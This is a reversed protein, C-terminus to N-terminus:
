KLTVSAVLGFHDSPYLSADAAHPREGIVRADEVEFAAPDVLIYDLTKRQFWEGEGSVLPTPFTYDPERGHVERYASVLRKRAQAITESEPTANFDGMLVWSGAQQREHFMWGLLYRLQELRIVEDNLPLHHLHTNAIRIRHGGQEVEIAHAIRGEHPLHLVEHRTVPLRSLLACGEWQQEAGWKSAQFLEYPQRDGRLNLEAAIREAQDIRLAVEQFAVVDADEALLEVVVLPFREPWRDADHRLNLTLLKVDYCKSWSEHTAKHCKVCLTLLNYV